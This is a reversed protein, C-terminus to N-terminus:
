QDFLKVRANVSFNSCRTSLQNSAALGVPLPIRQTQIWELVIYLQITCHTTRTFLDRVRQIRTRIFLLNRTCKLQEASRAAWIVPLSRYHSGTSISHRSCPIWHWNMNRYCNHRSAHLACKSDKSSGNPNQSYLQSANPQWRRCAVLISNWQPLPM